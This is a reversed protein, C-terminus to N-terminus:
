TSRRTGGCGVGCTTWTSSSCPLQRPGAQPGGRDRVGPRDALPDVRRPAAEQEDGADPGDGAAGQADVDPRDQPQHPGRGRGALGGDRRRAPGGAAGATRGAQVRRESRTRRPSRGPGGTSWTGGTSCAASPRGAPRWATGSASCCPWCRAPGAAASSASTARADQHDGLRRPRRGVRPGASLPPRAEERDPGAVGEAQFRKLWRDVTRSSCFLM